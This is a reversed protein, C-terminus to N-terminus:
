RHIMEIRAEQPHISAAAAGSFIPVGRDELLEGVSRDSLEPLLRALVTELISYVVHKNCYEDALLDLFDHEIAAILFAEEDDNDQQQQQQQQDTSGRM